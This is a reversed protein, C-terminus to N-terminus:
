SKVHFLFSFVVGLLDLLFLVVLDLGDLQEVNLFVCLDLVVIRIDNGIVDINDLRPLILDQIQGLM